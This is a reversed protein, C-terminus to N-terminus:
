QKLRYQNHLFMETGMEDVDLNINAYYRRMASMSTLRIDCLQSLFGPHKLAACFKFTIWAGPGAMFGRVVEDHFKVVEQPPQVLQSIYAFLAAIYVNYDLISYLM